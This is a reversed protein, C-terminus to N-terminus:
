VKLSNEQYKLTLTTRVKGKIVAENKSREKFGFKKYFRIARNNNINADVYMIKSKEALSKLTQTGIGRNQYLPDIVFTHIYFAEKEMENVVIKGMKVLIPLKKLFSWFGFVKSFSKGSQKDIFQKQKGLFGVVVGALQNDYIVCKLYPASFYNNGRELLNEIIALGKEKNDFILCNFENDSLFVLEAIKKKDHELNNYEELRVELCVVVL